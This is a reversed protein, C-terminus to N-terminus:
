VPIAKDYKAKFSEEIEKQHDEYKDKSVKTYGFLDSKGDPFCFFTYKSDMNNEVKTKDKIYEERNEIYTIEKNGNKSSKIDEFCDHENVYPPLTRKGKLVKKIAKETRKREYDLDYVSDDEMADLTNQSWWTKGDKDKEKMFEIISLGREKAGESEYKNLILSMEAMAGEETFNEKYCARALKKIEDESINDYGMFYYDEGYGTGRRISSPIDIDLNKDLMLLTMILEKNNKEAKIFSNIRDNTVAEARLLSNYANFANESCTSATKKFVFDSPAKVNKASKYLSQANKRATRIAPLVKKVTGYINIEM